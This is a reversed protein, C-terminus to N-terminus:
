FPYIPASGAALLLVAMTVFAEDFPSVDQPVRDDGGRHQVPQQVVGVDEVDLSVAIPEALLLLRPQWRAGEGKSGRM